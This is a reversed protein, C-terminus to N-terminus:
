IGERPPNVLTPIKLELGVPINDPNQIGNFQCIVWWYHPNNYVRQALLEPKNKEELKVKVLTYPVNMVILDTQIINPDETIHYYRSTQKYEKM